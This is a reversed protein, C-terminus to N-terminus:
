RRGGVHLEDRDEVGCEKGDGGDLRDCCGARVCLSDLTEAVAGTLAAGLELTSSLGGGLCEGDRLWDGFGLCLRKLAETVPGSLAAGLGLTRGLCECIRDSICVGYGISGGLSFWTLGETIKEM